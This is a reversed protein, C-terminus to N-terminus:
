QDGVVVYEANYAEVLRAEQRIEDATAALQANNGGALNKVFRAYGLRAEPGSFALVDVLVHTTEPELWRRGEDTIQPDALYAARTYVICAAGTVPLALSRKGVLAVEGRWLVPFYDSPNQTRRGVGSEFIAALNEERLQKLLVFHQGPARNTGADHAMLAPQLIEQCFQQASLKVKTGVPVMKEFKSAAIAHVQIVLGGIIRIIQNM